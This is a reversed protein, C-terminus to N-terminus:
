GFLQQILPAIKSETSGFKGMNLGGNRADYTATGLVTTGERVEILAYTLYMAMDWQWNATYTLHHRCDAPVPGEYVRTAVGRAEISRRLTPLFGEMLVADNQEICIEAIKTGEVPRVSQNIACGSLFTALLFFIASRHFM